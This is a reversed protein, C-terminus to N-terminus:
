VLELVDRLSAIVPCGNGAAAGSRDILVADMGIAQPGEVDWRPDDGVFLCEAPTRRLRELVYDFARRDPKRWGVEGCFVMLDLTGQLGLRAMEEHWLEAPSGWPSNSLLATAIGRQRLAALVEPTEDYVRACAFVPGMYARCLGDELRRAQEGELSFIDALRDILPQVQCDTREGRRAAVRAALTDADVVTVGQRRLYDASAAIAEDLVAPWGSRDFYDVLTNGMDFIVAKYTM